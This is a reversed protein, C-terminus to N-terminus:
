SDGIPILSIGFEQAVQMFFIALAILMIISLIPRGGPLLTQSTTQEKYRIKWVMLVPMVGFLIVAAFGGAWNLAKIFIGPNALAFILPPFVSLLILAVRNRGIKSIKLGDSLFDVLSLVQALFSTVIAFLAFSQAAVNIWSRGVVCWLAQTAAEGKNLAHALGCRGEAPIIGLMVAEWILYTFLPMLSGVIIIIKLRKVDGHLYMALSPVMNHFGFSIILIPLSVFAFPWSYASLYQPNIYLSGLFVLLFYSIILGLMLFRNLYDVHRVGVYIVWSFTATFLMSGVWPSVEIRLLDLLITSLISGSASIYAVSLSYFLFLFLLWCLNKGVRGLTKEAISILSCHHGIFLNAELLLLGTSCMFLWSVVFMIIAPFFGGMGTVVPLALMGAGICSGALLLIGGFLSGTKTQLGVSTNM